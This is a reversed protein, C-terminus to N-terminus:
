PGLGERIAFRVLGSAKHIRLKKMIKARHSEVTRTAVQLRDGIERSSLGRVIYGLVERERSTLPMPAQADALGPAALADEADARVEPALFRGGARVVLIAEFLSTVSSRRTVYAGAGARMAAMVDDRATWSSLVVARPADGRRALRRIVEIGPVRPLALDMVIVDPELQGALELLREGDSAEGVVSLLAPRADFLARTGARSIELEDALLLRTAEPGRMAVGSHTPDLRIARQL